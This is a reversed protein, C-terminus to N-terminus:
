RRGPTPARHSEPEGEEEQGYERVEHFFGDSFSQYAALWFRVVHGSLPAFNGENHAQVSALLTAPASSLVKESPRELCKPSYPWCSFPSPSRLGPIAM